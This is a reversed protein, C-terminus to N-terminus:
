TNNNSNDSNNSNNSNNDNDNDNDNDNNNDNDHKYSPVFFPGRRIRPKINSRRFPTAKVRGKEFDLNNVTALTKPPRM